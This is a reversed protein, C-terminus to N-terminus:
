PVEAGPRPGPVSPTRQGSRVILTFGVVAPALLFVVINLVVHPLPLSDFFQGVMTLVLTLYSTSMLRQHWLLWNGVKGRLLVPLSLGAALLLTAAISVAHFVGFFADEASAIGFSSVLMAVMGAAYTRGAYRHLRTGKPLLLVVGGVFVALLGSVVHVAIVPTM